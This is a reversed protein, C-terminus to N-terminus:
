KKLYSLYRQLCATRMIREHFCSRWRDSLTDCCQGTLKRFLSARLFAARKLAVYSEAPLQQQGYDNDITMYMFGGVCKM